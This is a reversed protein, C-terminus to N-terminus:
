GTEVLSLAYPQRNPGLRNSEQNPPNKPQRAQATTQRRLDSQLSCTLGQDPSIAIPHSKSLNPINDINRIAINRFLTKM